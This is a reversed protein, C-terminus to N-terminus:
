KKDKDEEAWKELSWFDDMSLQPISSVDVGHHDPLSILQERITNCQNIIDEAKRKCLCDVIQQFQRQFYRNLQVSNNLVWDVFPHDYTICRREKYDECCIYQRSRESAAKCFMMPPFLDYREEMENDRKEYFYIVQGAEYCVTMQYIDQFYVMLYKYLVADISNASIWYEYILSVDVKVHLNQKIKIFFDKQNEWMWEDIQSNRLERWAKLKRDRWGELRLM